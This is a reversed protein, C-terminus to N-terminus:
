ESSERRSRWAALGIIVVMLIGLAVPAAYEFRIRDIGADPTTGDVGLTQATRQAEPLGTLRVTLQAGRELGGAQLLRYQRDGISTTEVEMVATEVESVAAGSLEALEEPVLLRFLDAGYRLSKTFGAETGSYPFRYTYLVEHEGPPLSAILAFGRDVQIFDAGPLLTDLALHGAGEPLGFRLFSMVGSGPVYTRDSRNVITVIELVSLTGMAPDASTFLVSSLLASLASDDDSADYVEFLVPAPAGSSMDLDLVYIAGQYTTSLGYAAAPDYVVDEFLFRGGADTPTEVTTQGAAEGSQRHLSVVAGEVGEGGRTVNVVRGEVSVTEGQGSVVLHTSLLLAILLAATARLRNVAKRQPVSTPPLPARGRRMEREIRALLARQRREDLELAKMVVVAETMYQDRLWDYDEGSLNGVARDLETSRLGALASDWRRVLDARPGAEDDVPQAAARRRLIPYLIAVAPLLALLLATLVLM